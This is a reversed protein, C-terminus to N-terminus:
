LYAISNPHVGSLDGSPSVWKYNRHQSTPLTSLDPEVLVEYAIVVYHTSVGEVGAFNNDYLHTFVGVLRTAELTMAFGLEELCLRGFADEVTEGKCIRGGPVFWHDRAPENRRWGMLVDGQRSRVILDISVLPANAIVELFRERPLMTEDM